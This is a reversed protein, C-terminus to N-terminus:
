FEREGSLSGLYIRQQTELLTQFAHDEEPTLPQNPVKQKKKKCKKKPDRTNRLAHSVKDHAYEDGVDYWINTNCDKKLFRGGCERITSVIEKNIRTKEERSKANQYKNRYWSIMVRFRKNGVHAYAERDKGCLVDVNRPIMHDSSPSDESFLMKENESSTRLLCAIDEFSLTEQPELTGGVHQESQTIMLNRNVIM